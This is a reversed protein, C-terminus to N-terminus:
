TIKGGSLAQKVHSQMGFASTRRSREMGFANTKRSKGDRFRKNERSKVERFRKNQTIKSGLLTPQVHSEIGFASTERSTAM